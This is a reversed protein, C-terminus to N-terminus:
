KRYFCSRSSNTIRIRTIVLNHCNTYTNFDGLNGYILKAGKESIYKEFATMKINYKVGM